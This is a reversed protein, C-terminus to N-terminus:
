AAWGSLGSVLLSSLEDTIVRPSYTRSSARWTSSSYSSLGGGQAFVLRSAHFAIAVRWKTIKEEAAQGADRVTADPHVQAMFASRGYGVGIEAVALELPKLTDDFAPQNVSAVAREVLADARALANDAEKTVSDITVTRYDYPMGPM